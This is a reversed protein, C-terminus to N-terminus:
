SGSKTIISPLFKAPDYQDVDVPKPRPLAYLFAEMDYELDIVSVFSSRLYDGSMQEKFGVVGIKGAGGATRRVRDLHQMEELFDNDHSFVYLDGDWCKEDLESKSGWTKRLRAITANIADDVVSRMKNPSKKDSEPQLPVPTIWPYKKQLASVVSMTADRYQVFFLFNIQTKRGYQSRLWDLVRDWQVEHKSRGEGSGNFIDMLTMHINEGDVLVVVDPDATNNPAVPKPETTAAKPANNQESAFNPTRNEYINVPTVRVDEVLDHFEISSDLLRDLWNNRDKIHYRQVIDRNFYAISVKRNQSLDLLIQGMSRPDQPSSFDSFAFNGGVFFLDCDDREIARLHEMLYQTVESRNRSDPSKPTYVRYGLHGLFAYFGGSDIPTNQYFFLDEVDHVKGRIYSVLKAHDFRAEATITSGWIQKHAWWVSSNDVIVVTRRHETM